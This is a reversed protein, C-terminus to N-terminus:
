QRVLCHPLALAVERVRKESQAALLMVTTLDTLKNHLGKIRM